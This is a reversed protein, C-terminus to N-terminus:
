GRATAPARPTREWEDALIARRQEPSYAVLAEAFRATNALWTEAFLRCEEPSLGRLADEIRVFALRLHAAGAASAAARHVRENLAQHSPTTPANTM